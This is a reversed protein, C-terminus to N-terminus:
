TIRVINQAYMKLFTCAHMIWKKNINKNKTYCFKRNLATVFENIWPMLENFLLSKWMFKIFQLFMFKTFTVMSAGSFLKFVSPMWMPRDVPILMVSELMLVPSSQTDRPSPLSCTVTRLTVHPGPCPMLTPLRPFYWFSDGTCPTKTLFQVNVLVIFPTRTLVHGAEGFPTARSRCKSSKIMFLTPVGTRM